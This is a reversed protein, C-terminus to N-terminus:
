KINDVVFGSKGDIIMYYSSVYKGTGDCNRCVGSEDPKYYTCKQIIPKYEVVHGNRKIIISSQM